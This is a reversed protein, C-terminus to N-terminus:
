RVVSFAVYRRESNAGQGVVLEIAYDAPALPALTLDAAIITQGNDTRESLTVPLPVVQGRAGPVPPQVPPPPQQAIVATALACLSGALAGFTLLSRVDHGKM